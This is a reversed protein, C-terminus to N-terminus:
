GVKPLVAAFSQKSRCGLGDHPPVAPCAQVENQFRGNKPRWLKLNKLRICRLGSTQHNSATTLNRPGSRRCLAWISRHQTMRMKTTLASHPGESCTRFSQGSLCIASMRQLRSGAPPISRFRVVLPSDCLIKMRRQPPGTVPRQPCPIVRGLIV